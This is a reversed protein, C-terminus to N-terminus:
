KAENISEMLQICKEKAKRFMRLQVLCALENFKIELIELLDADEEEETSEGLYEQDAM